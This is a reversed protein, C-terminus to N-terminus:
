EEKKEKRALYDKIKKLKAKTIMLSRHTKKDHSTISLFETKSKDIQKHERDLIELSRLAKNFTRAIDGLENNLNLDIRTKFNGNEFERTAKQVKMIPRYVETIISRIIFATIIMAIGALITISYEPVPLYNSVGMLLILLFLATFLYVQKRKTTNISKDAM